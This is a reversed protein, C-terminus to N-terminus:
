IGHLPYRCQTIGSSLPYNSTFLGGTGEHDALVDAFYSVHSLATLPTLKQLRQNCLKMYFDLFIVNM